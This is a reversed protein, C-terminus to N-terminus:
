DTEHRGYRHPINLIGLHHCHHIFTKKGHQVKRYITNCIYAFFIIGCFFVGFFDMGGGRQTSKEM